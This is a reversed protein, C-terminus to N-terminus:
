PLEERLLKRIKLNNEKDRDAYYNEEVMFKNYCIRCFFAFIHESGKDFRQSSILARLLYSHPASFNNLM